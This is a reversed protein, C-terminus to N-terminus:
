FQSCKMCCLITNRYNILSIYLYTRSQITNYLSPWQGSAVSHLALMCNMLTPKHSRWDVSSQQDLKILEAWEPGLVNVDTKYAM